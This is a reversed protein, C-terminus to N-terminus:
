DPIAVHVVLSQQVKGLIAVITANGSGNISVRGSDDVSAVGLNSSRWTPPDIIDLILGDRDYAVLVLDIEQRRDLVADPKNKIELRVPAHRCAIAHACLCLCLAVWLLGRM